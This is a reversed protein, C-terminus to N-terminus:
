NGSIGLDPHSWTGSFGVHLDWTASNDSGDGPVTTIIHGDSGITLGNDAWASQNFNIDGTGEYTAYHDYWATSDGCLPLRGLNFSSGGSTAGFMRVKSDSSATNGYVDIFAGDGDSDTLMHYINHEGVAEFSRGNLTKPLAGVGGNSMSAYNTFGGYAMRGIDTSGVYSFSNQGAAGYMSSKSDTRNIGYEMYGGNTFFANVTTNFNDVGYGYPNNDQDDAHFSGKIYNGSTEFYTVADDSASVDVRNFGAGDWDVDVITPAATAIISLGSLILLTLGLILYKRM